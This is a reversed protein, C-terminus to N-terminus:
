FREGEANLGFRGIEVTFPAGWREEYGGGEGEASPGM